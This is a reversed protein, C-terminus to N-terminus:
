KVAKFTYSAGECSVQVFLLGEAPADLSVIGSADTVTRLLRGTSDYLRVDCGTLSGLQLEMRDGYSLLVCNDTILDCIGTGEGKGTFHLVIKQNLAGSASSFTGAPIVFCYAQGPELDFMQTFGDYDQGVIRVTNDGDEELDTALWHSDPEILEGTLEDGKILQAEPQSTVITVAEPFTILVKEIQELEAGDAPNFSTPVFVAAEGEVMSSFYDGWDYSDEYAELCGKPVSLVAESSIGYFPHDYGEYYNLVPPETALCHVDKLASCNNFAYMDIDTVTSPITVSTLKECGAMLGESIYTLNEPLAVDTLQTAALAQAGMYVLSSPFNIEALQSECFAFEDFARMTEPLTVKQIDCGNFAGGSIGRCGDEVTLETTASKPPFAYLLVKDASYVAENIVALKDNGEALKFASVQTKGFVANGFSEVSQPITVEGSLATELFLYTPLSQLNVADSLNVESLKHCERFVGEGLVRIAPNLVVKQLGECTQFVNNGTSDCAAPFTFETLQDCGYFAGSGITKITSPLNVSELSLCSAFSSSSVHDLGEPLTITKLSDCYAFAFDGLTRLNDSVVIEKVAEAGYMGAYAIETITNPMMVKTTSDNYNFADELISTVTYSKGDYTVTAPINAELVGVNSLGATNEGTVTFEMGDQTFVIPDQGKAVCFAASALAFLLMKRM